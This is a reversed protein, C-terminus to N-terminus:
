LAKGGDISASRVAEAFARMREPDKNGPSSEVGSSVDVVDPRLTLIARGVNAADLGGAVIVSTRERLRAVSGALRAWDFPVGAGGTRGAVRADLLVADAVAAMEDAAPPMTEAAPDLGVVAWIEGRFESRLAEVARADAGAHLQVVDAKVREAVVAIEGATGSGFVAVHRVEPGGAEFIRLAAAPDVRRQSDAFITGIFTAGLRRAERADDPKTLGCFKILTGQSGAL